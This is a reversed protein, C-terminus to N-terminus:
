SGFSLDVDIAMPSLWNWDVLIKMSSFFMLFDWFIVSICGYGFYSFMLFLLVPNSVYMLVETHM